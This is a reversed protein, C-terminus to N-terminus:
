DKVVNRVAAHNDGDLGLITGELGVDDVDRAAERSFVKQDRLVEMVDDYRTILKGLTGNARLVDAVGTGAERIDHYKQNKYLGPQNVGDADQDFPHAIPCTASSEPDVTATM